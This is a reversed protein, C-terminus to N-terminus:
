VVSKRDIHISSANTFLTGHHVQYVVRIGHRECQEATETLQRRARDIQDTLPTDPNIKYYGMRVDTVGNDAFAALISTDEILHKPHFSTTAFSTELGLERMRDVYRPLDEALTDPEVAYGERVVVNLTDLGVERALDALQEISYSQYFKPFCSWTIKM